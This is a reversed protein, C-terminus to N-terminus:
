HRKKVRVVKFSRKAPTADAGIGALVARVEFRYRRPKLKYKQPSSCGKFPPAKPAKRGKRPLRVLRCEFSTGPESSSFRFKVKARKGHTIVKGKPGKDITTEPVRRPNLPQASV